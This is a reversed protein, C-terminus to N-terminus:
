NRGRQRMGQVFGKLRQIEALFDQPGPLPENIATAQTHGLLWKSCVTMGADIMDLDAQCIDHVRKLRQTPVRRDFRM